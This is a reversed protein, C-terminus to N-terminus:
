EPRLKVIDTDDMFSCEVLNIEEQSICTMYFFGYGQIQLMNLVRMSVLAWITPGAGNGQGLGHVPV